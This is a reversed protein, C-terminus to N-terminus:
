ERNRSLYNWDVVQIWVLVDCDLEKIDIAM